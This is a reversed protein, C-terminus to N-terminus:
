YLVQTRRRALYKAVCIHAILTIGSTISWMPACVSLAFLLPINPSLTSSSESYVNFAFVPVYFIFFLFPFAALPLLQKLAKLFQDGETYKLRWCVRNALKIVIVVMAASSVLLFIMAPGNWLVTNEIFAIHDTDNPTFIYCTDVQASYRYTNTILPVCAIVAPVLLSTVVYFAELKKPNKHLVAFCFLHFTVWMTFLLNMWQAYMGLLGIAKCLGDYLKPDEDYKIFITTEFIDMVALFLAGVVQYLALRYVIKKRMKLIFVLIAGLLCMLVAVINLANYVIGATYVLDYMRVGDCDDERQFQYQVRKFM